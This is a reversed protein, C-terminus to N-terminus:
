SMGGSSGHGHLARESPDIDSLEVNFVDLDFVPTFRIQAIRQGPLIYVGVYGQNVLNVMLPGRHGADVVGPANLVTLGHKNAWGSRPCILGCWGPSLQMGHLVLFLRREGPQLLIEEQEHNVLEYAADSSHAKELPYRSVIKLKPKRM